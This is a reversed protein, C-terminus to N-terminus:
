QAIARLTAQVAQVPVWHWQEPGEDEECHYADDSVDGVSRPKGRDTRGSAHGGGAKGRPKTKTLLQLKLQRDLLPSYQSEVLGRAVLAEQPMARLLLPMARLLLPM